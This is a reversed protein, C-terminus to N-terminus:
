RMIALRGRHQFKSKSQGTVGDIQAKRMEGATHGKSYSETGTRSATVAKAGGAQWHYLKKALTKSKRRVQRALELNSTFTIAWADAHAAAGGGGNSASSTRGDGEDALRHGEGSFATFSHDNGGGDPDGGGSVDGSAGGPSLVSPRGFPATAAGGTGAAGATSSRGRPTFLGRLLEHLGVDDDDGGTAAAEHNVMVAAAARCSSDGAAADDVAACSCTSPAPSSSTAATPPRDADFFGERLREMCYQEAEEKDEIQFLKEWILHRENELAGDVFGQLFQPTSLRRSKKGRKQLQLTCGQLDLQGLHSILAATLAAGTCTSLPGVFCCGGSSCYGFEIGLPSSVRECADTFWAQRRHPVDEEEQNWLLSAEVMVDGASWEEEGSFQKKMRAFKDETWSAKSLEREFLRMANRAEGETVGGGRFRGELRELRKLVHLEEASRTADEAARRTAGFHLAMEELELKCETRYQADAIRILMFWKRCRFPNKLTFEHFNEKRKGHTLCVEKDSWVAEVEREPEPPAPSTARAGGCRLESELPESRDSDDDDVAKRKRGLHRLREQWRGEMKDPEGVSPGGCGEAKAAGAVGSSGSSSGNSSGMVIRQVGERDAAQERRFLAKWEELIDQAM